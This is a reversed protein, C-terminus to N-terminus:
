WWILIELHCSLPVVVKGCTVNAKKAGEFIEEKLRDRDPGLRRTITGPAMNPNANTLKNKKELYDELLQKMRAIYEANWGEPTKDRPAYPNAVWIWGDDTHSTLPPVRRLFESPTEGLKKANDLREWPNYPVQNGAMESEFKTPTNRIAIVNTLQWHNDWYGHIDIDKCRRTLQNQTEEDGSIILVTSHSPTISIGYFDSEDDLYELQEM